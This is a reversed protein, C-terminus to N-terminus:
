HTLSGILKSVRLNLKAKKCIMLGSCNSSKKRSYFIKISPLKVVANVANVVQLMQHKFKLEKARDPGMAQDTIPSVSASAIGVGTSFM